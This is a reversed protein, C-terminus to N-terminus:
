AALKKNIGLHKEIAAIRELAHDIEKQFGSVNEVKERLDELDRRISKLEREVNTLQGGLNAIDDKTAMERRLDAIDDKTAIHKVVHALIEGIEKLTTKKPAMRPSYVVATTPARSHASPKSTVCCSFQFLLARTKSAPFPKSIM